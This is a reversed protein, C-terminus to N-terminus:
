VVRSAPSQPRECAPSPLILHGRAAANDLQALEDVTSPEVFEPFRLLELLHVTYLM